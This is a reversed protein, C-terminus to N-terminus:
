STPTKATYAALGTDSTSIVASLETTALMARAIVSSRRCLQRRRIGVVMSALIPPCSEELASLFMSGTRQERQSPSAAAMESSAGLQSIMRPTAM